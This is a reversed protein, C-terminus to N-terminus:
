GFSMLLKITTQFAMYQLVWLVCATKAQVTSGRKSNKIILAQEGFCSTTGYMHVLKSEIISQEGDGAEQQQSVTVTLEGSDVIYMARGVDGQTYLIEGPELRTKVM